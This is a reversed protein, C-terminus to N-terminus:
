ARSSTSCSRAAATSSRGPRSAPHRTATMPGSSCPDIINDLTVRVIPPNTAQTVDLTDPEFGIGVVIREGSQARALPVNLSALPVAAVVGKLFERRDM